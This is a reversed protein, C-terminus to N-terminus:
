KVFPNVVSHPPSEERITALQAIAAELMVDSEPTANQIGRRTKTNPRYIPHKKIRRRKVSIVIVIVMATLIMVSAVIPIIILLNEPPDNLSKEPLTSMDTPYVHNEIGEKVVSKTETTVVDEHLWPNDELSKGARLDLM